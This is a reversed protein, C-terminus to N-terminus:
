LQLPKLRQLLPLIEEERGDFARLPETIVIRPVRDAAVALPLRFRDVLDDYRSLPLVAAVGHLHTWRATGAGFYM